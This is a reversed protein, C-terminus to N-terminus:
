DPCESCREQDSDHSGEKEANFSPRGARVFRNANSRIRLKEQPKSSDRSPCGTRLAEFMHHQKM